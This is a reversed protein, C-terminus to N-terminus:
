EDGPLDLGYRESIDLPPMSGDIPKGAKVYWDYWDLIRHVVDVQGPQKSNGHGEGPYQVLRVAPHDNMKMRRYLEISQTPHVRTDAQGGYILTATKSQHAWYVPSRELSKQWMDELLGGAHVYAEEYPIDTTGKRSVNNSVGVFMCVAKVYKTYYTAFWGSAYGGYSGGGLGIRDKDALGTKIFYEIGDAIDDFEVGAPDGYGTWAYKLGYGTSSRYNPEFVAYGKASLIQTPEAYRTRWGNIRNSEPGGHILFVMPYSQGEKYEAPYILLGEIEVGDRAKYRVAEQKGLKRQALWPNSNSLRQPKQGRRWYFIEGPYTPSEGVFAFSKCDASYSPWSFVFGTERSNLLILRQTGNGAVEISNLTTNVGEIAHYLLTNDDQWGVKDIHGRFNKETFNQAAGGTVAIVMAQSVAHDKQELAAAYALKAGNPSFSYNGLKGTNKTLQKLSKTAIDLLYIHRFMYKYDILNKHSMSAAITKGDPSFELDWATIDKTLQIAKQEKIDLLYINRHKLEEEFYVFGYGKEHLAQERKSQPTVALYAIQNNDPSWRFGSVDTESNTLQVAEGGAVPISWVQKKKNGDRKDLFAIKGGDQSWAINTVHNAGSIYSRIEERETSALQLHRYSSGPPDTARRPVDLTYAIWNGDPSIAAERVAKTKFLDAITYGEGESAYSKKSNSFAMMLFLFTFFFLMSRYFYM